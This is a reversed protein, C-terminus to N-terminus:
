AAERDVCNRGGGPSGYQPRNFTRGAFAIPLDKEIEGQSLICGAADRSGDTSIIFPRSFDPFQLIPATTLM